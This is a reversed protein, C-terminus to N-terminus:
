PAVEATSQSVDDQSNTPTLDTLEGALTAVLRRVEEDCSFEDFSRAFPRKWNRDAAEIGPLNQRRTELWFDEVNAIAITADGASLWAILAALVDSATASEADCGVFAAIERRRTGAQEWWAAFPEMDHTGFCALMGPQPSAIPSAADDRCEFPVVFMRAAGRRHMEARVEDPVTGLDEGIVAAGKGGRARAAEIALISWSEDARSRVYVGDAATFGEPIWFLRHLGMVHDVRLLAAHEFHHKLAARV